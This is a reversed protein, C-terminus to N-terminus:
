NILSLIMKKKGSREVPIEEVIQLDVLVNEDMSSLDNEINEKIHNIIDINFDERAREAVWSTMLRSLESRCTTASEEKSATHPDFYPYVHAESLPL